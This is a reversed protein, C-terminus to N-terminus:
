WPPIAVYGEEVYYAPIEKTGLTVGEETAATKGARIDNATADFVTYEDVLVAPIEVGNEDVLIYAQTDDGSGGGTGSHRDLAPKAEDIFLDKLFDPM